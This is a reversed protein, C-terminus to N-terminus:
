SRSSWPSSPDRSSSRRHERRRPPGASGPGALLASVPALAFTLALAVPAFALVRLGAPVRDHALGAWRSGATVCALHVIVLCAALLVARADPALREHPRLRRVVPELAFLGITAVGGVVAGPRGWGGQGIVWGLVCASAVAGGVGLRAFRLPWGLVAIAIAVGLVARAAETDPVTWYVGAVTVLWLLPAVGLRDHADFDAALAGGVCAFGAVLLRVVADGGVVAGATVVAGPLSAVAVLVPDRRVWWALEACAAALVAGGAAAAPFHQLHAVAGSRALAICSTVAFGAGALPLRRRGSLFAGAAVVATVALGVALGNRFQTANTLFDLPAVGSM